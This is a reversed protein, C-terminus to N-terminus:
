SEFRSFQGRRRPLHEFRFHDRIKNSFYHGKSDAALFDLYQQLPFDFYRYREGSRFLLDLTRKAHCYAAAAFVSSDLRVWNM